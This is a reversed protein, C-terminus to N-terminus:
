TQRVHEVEVIRRRQQAPILLRVHRGAACVRTGFLQRRQALQRVLQEHVVIGGAQDFVRFSGHLIGVRVAVVCGQHADDAVVEVDLGLQRSRQHSGDRAFRGQRVFDPRLGARLVVEGSEGRRELLDVVQHALLGLRETVLLAGVVRQEVLVLRTHLGVVDLRQERAQTLIEHREDRGDELTQIM